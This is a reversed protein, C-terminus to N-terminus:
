APNIDVYGLGGILNAVRHNYKVASEQLDPLSPRRAARGDPLPRRPLAGELAAAAVRRQPVAEIRRRVQM